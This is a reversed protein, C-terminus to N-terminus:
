SEGGLDAISPRYPARAPRNVRNAGGAEGSGQRPGRPDAPAEGTGSPDASRRGNSYNGNWVKEANFTPGDHERKLLWEFSPFQAAKFFSSGRERQDLLRAVCETFTFDPVNQRVAKRVRQFKTTLSELRATKLEPMRLSRARANYADAAKQLDEPVTRGHVEEGEDTVAERAEARSLERRKEETGKEERRKEERPCSDVPIEPFGGPAGGVAALYNNATLLKGDDPAPYHSKTRKHLGSQQDDHKDIHLYVKGGAAYATVAGITIMEGVASAFDQPDRPSLPKTNARVVVPDGEMRGFDDAWIVLRDFLLQAWESM